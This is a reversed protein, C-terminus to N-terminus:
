KRARLVKLGLARCASVRWGVKLDEAKAHIAYRTCSRAFGGCSCALMTNASQFPVSDLSLFVDRSTSSKYSTFGYSPRENIPRALVVSRCFSWRM